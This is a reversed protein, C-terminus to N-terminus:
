HAQISIVKNVLENKLSLFLTTILQRILQQDLKSHCFFAQFSREWRKLPFSNVTLDLGTPLFVCKNSLKYEVNENKFYNNKFSEGTLRKKLLPFTYNGLGLVKILEGLTLSYLHGIYRAWSIREETLAGSSYCTSYMSKNKLEDSALSYDFGRDMLAGAIAPLGSKKEKVSTKLDNVLLCVAGREQYILELFMDIERAYSIVIASKGNKINEM